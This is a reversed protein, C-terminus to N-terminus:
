NARVQPCMPCVYNTQDASKTLQASVSTVPASAPRVAPVGLTVLSSPPRTAQALYKEPDAKFKEACHGCCFYYSKGASDFRHKARAPDVNMGCVPDKVLTASKTLDDTM